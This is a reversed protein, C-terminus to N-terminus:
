TGPFEPPWRCNRNIDILFGVTKTSPAPALAGYPKVLDTPRLGNLVVRQGVTM